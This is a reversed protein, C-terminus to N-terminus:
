IIGGIKEFFHYTNGNLLDSIGNECNAKLKNFKSENITYLMKLEGGILLDNFLNVFEIFKNFVDDLSIKGFTANFDHHAIYKSRAYILTKFIGCKNNPTPTKILNPETLYKSNIINKLKPITNASGNIDCCLCWVTLCFDKKLCQIITELCTLSNKTCFITLKNYKFANTIEGIKCLSYYDIIASEIEFHISKIKETYEAQYEDKIKM